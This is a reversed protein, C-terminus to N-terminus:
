RFNEEARSRQEQAARTSRREAANAQALSTNAASLLVTAIAMCVGAVGGTAAGVAVLMRHRRGFRRARRVLPERWATVPEDATWREVDDALAKCSAYRGEATTAMAQLCVAELAPDISPDLQRPPPFAGKQVDRLITGLDTGEFPAKGTLLSYLTAGL